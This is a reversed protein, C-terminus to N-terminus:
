KSMNDFVAAVVVWQESCALWFDGWILMKKAWICTRFPVDQCALEASTNLFSCRNARM